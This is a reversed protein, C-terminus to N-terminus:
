TYCGADGERGYCCVVDGGVGGALGGDVGEEPGNWGEVGGECLGEAEGRVLCVEGGGKVSEDAREAQGARQAFHPYIEVISLRRIVDRRVRQLM